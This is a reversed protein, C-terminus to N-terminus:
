VLGKRKRVSWELCLLAALAALLVWRMEADLHRYELVSVTRPRAALQVRRLLGGLQELPVFQGGSDRAVMRLLDLNALVDLSELDRRVVDFRHEAALTKGGVEASIALRYTGPRTPPLLRGRRVRDDPALAVATAAGDPGTLTVSAPAQLLPRGTADELGATVEIVEAGAALRRLDYSTRDTVIWANGKPAALFLAVQRWFRRQTEATDNPSLVWRWTTDFAIALARGKGYQQAVILPEGAPTAALVRAAPKPGALRNAGPLPGLARWAAAPDSGAAQVHLMEDALGEPTPVVKVDGDIQGDIRALDVPLVDALPTAAWGGRGFARSGGIMCFGKGYESVLERVIQIQRPTFMSAPVDGFVIAHYALWDDLDEGLGGRDDAGAPGLLIRRDVTFREAAAWAQALHKCEYRFKGEVYLLRLGRDTVHVLKSDAPAGGAAGRTEASVTLRHFGSRLPVHVFRVTRSQRDEDFAVQRTQVLKEGFRCTVTAARGALGIAEVTATVPLRAFAEVEDPASLDRVTLTRTAATVAESGVGVTHVPVGRSAMHAALKAPTYEDATNNCGDSILVVAAVERPAARVLNFAAITADGLATAAGTAPGIHPPPRPGGRPRDATLTGAPLAATDFTFFEVDARAALRALADRENELAREVADIRRPLQGAPDEGAAPTAGGADRRQMSASTDVGVLVVAPVLRDHSHALTPGTAWAALLGVVGLRLGLLLAKWGRRVPATIRGYSRVAWAAAAAALTLVAGIPAGEVHWWGTLGALAAVVTGRAACWLVQGGSAGGALLRHLAAALATVPGALLSAGAVAAGAAASRGRFARRVLLVVEVALVAAAAAVLVGRWGPGGVPPRFLWTAAVSEV